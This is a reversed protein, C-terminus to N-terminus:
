ILRIVVILFLNGLMRLSRGSDLFYYQPILSLNFILLLMTKICSRITIGDHRRFRTSCVNCEARWTDVVHARSGILIAIYSCIM